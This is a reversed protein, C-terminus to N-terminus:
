KLKFFVPLLMWKSNFSFHDFLNFSSILNSVTNFAKLFAFFNERETYWCKIWYLSRCLFITCLLNNCLIPIESVRFQRKQSIGSVISCIYKSHTLAIWNHLLVSFQIFFKPYWWKLIESISFIKPSFCLSRKFCMTTKLMLSTIYWFRLVPFFNKRASTFLAKWFFMWIKFVISEKFWFSDDKSSSQIIKM